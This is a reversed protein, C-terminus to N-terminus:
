ANGADIISKERETCLIRVKRLHNEYSSFCESYPDSRGGLLSAFNVGLFGDFGPISFGKSNSSRTRFGFIRASNLLLSHSRPNMFFDEPNQTMSIISTSYHRSHRTLTDLLKSCEASDILNHAEDVLVVKKSHTSTIMSLISLLISIMSPENSSSVLQGPRFIILQREQIVIEHKFVSSLLESMLKVSSPTVKDNILLHLFGHMTKPGEAHLYESLYHRLVRVDGAIGKDFHILMSIFADVTEPNNSSFKLPDIYEGSGVNIVAGGGPFIGADYEGLPDIIYVNDVSSTLIARRVMLKTFFSKGSGTEGFSLMNFSNGGFIDIFVPKETLDDVGIVVGRGEPVPEFHIPLISAVSLSDMLYRGNADNFPGMSSTIAKRTIRKKIKMILGLYELSAIVRRAGRSLEIPHDSELVIQVDTAYVRRGNESITRLLSELTEVHRKLRLTRTRDKRDEYRMESKRSAHLRKITRESVKEPMSSLSIRQRMRLNTSELLSCYMGASDYDGDVLSM